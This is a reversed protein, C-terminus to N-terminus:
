DRHPRIKDFHEYDRRNDVREYDYEDLYGVKIGARKFAIAMGREFSCLDQKSVPYRKFYGMSRIKDLASRKAYFIPGFIGHEPLDDLLVYDGELYGKVDQFQEGMPFRLWTCVDHKRMEPLPDKKFVMSDHIFLYEDALYNEYALIYAGVGYGAKKTADKKCWLNNFVDISEQETSGTDVVIYPADTHKEISSILNEIFEKGNFYPIVILTRM